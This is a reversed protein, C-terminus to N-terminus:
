SSSSDAMARAKREDAKTVHHMVKGGFYFAIIMQFAVLLKDIKEELGTMQLNVVELLMVIFLLSLTMFGRFVGRPMGFTENQYPNPNDKTWNGLTYKGLLRFFIVTNIVLWGTVLGFVTQFVWSNASIINM